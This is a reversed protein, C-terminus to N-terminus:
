KEQAEGTMPVFRVPFVAREVFGKPTRTLVLLEQYGEGVPIVLRGGVKTQEKLPEPVRPPAATVIVADFPAEEPWGRYGDGARVKVQDYGLRALTAAASRALPEVIEITFVQAGLEALIAAQYGSGTGVELVRAGPGVSALESMAAVIYPQSITQEHGIPLPHDDYARPVQEKPVFEHRPVKRMAALVRPDRVGRAEIQQSVMMDREKARDDRASPAAPEHGAAPKQSCAGVVLSVGALALFGRRWV